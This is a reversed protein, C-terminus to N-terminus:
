FHFTLSALEAAPRPLVELALSYLVAAGALGYLLNATAAHQRAMAVAASADPAFTLTEARAAEGRALFGFGVGGLAMLGGAVYGSRHAPFFAAPPEEALAPASFTALAVTLLRAARRSRMM